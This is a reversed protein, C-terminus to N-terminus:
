PNRIVPLRNWDKDTSSSNEIGIALPIRSEKLQVGSELAWSEPNWMGIKGLNVHPTTLSSGNPFYDRLHFDIKGGRVAKKIITRRVLANAKGWGGVKKELPSM